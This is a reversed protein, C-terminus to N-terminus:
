APDAIRSRILCFVFFCVVFKKIGVYKKSGQTNNGREKREKQM